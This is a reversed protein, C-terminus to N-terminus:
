RAQANRAMRDFFAKDSEGGVKEKITDIFNKFLGM